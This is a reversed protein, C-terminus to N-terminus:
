KGAVKVPKEYPCGLAERGINSAEIKASTADTLKDAKRVTIQPWAECIRLPEVTRVTGETSCAALSPLILAASLWKLRRCSLM